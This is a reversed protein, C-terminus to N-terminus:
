KNKNHENRYQISYDCGIKHANERESLELFFNTIFHSASARAADQEHDNARQEVIREPPCPTYIPQFQIHPFTSSVPATAAPPYHIEMSPIPYPTARRENIERRLQAEEAQSSRRKATASNTPKRKLPPPPPMPKAQFESGAASSQMYSTSSSSPYIYPPPEFMPTHHPQPVRQSQLIHQQQQQEQQQNFQHQLLLQQQHQRWSLQRQQERIQVDLKQQEARVKRQQKVKDAKLLNEAKISKKMKLQFRHDDEAREKHIAELNTYFFRQQEEDQQKLKQQMVKLKDLEGITELINQQCVVQQQQSIKPIIYSVTSHAFLRQQAQAQAQARAQAQAEAQARAQAQAEVQAKAQAQALQLKQQQNQISHAPYTDLNQQIWPYVLASHLLPEVDVHEQRFNDVSNNHTVRSPLFTEVPPLVNHHCLISNGGAAVSSANSTSAISSSVSVPVSYCLAHPETQAEVMQHQMHQNSQYLQSNSTLVTELQQQQQVELIPQFSEEKAEVREESTNVQENNEVQNQSAEATSTNQFDELLGMKEDLLECNPNHWRLHPYPQEQGTVLQSCNEIISHCQDQMPQPNHIEGVEQENEESKNKIYINNDDDTNIIVPYHILPDNAADMAPMEIDEEKTAMPDIVEKTKDDEDADFIVDYQIVEPMQLDEEKTAMPDEVEKTGNDNDTDFIVEYHIMSDSALDMEPMQMDEEKTAMSDEVEKTENDDDADFIVEYHITSDNPVNMDPFQIAEEEKPAMPDEVEKTEEYSTFKNGDILESEDPSKKFSSQLATMEIKKLQNAVYRARGTVVSFKLM